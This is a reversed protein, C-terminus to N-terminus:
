PRLADLAVTVTFGILGGCTLWFLVWVALWRASVRSEPM